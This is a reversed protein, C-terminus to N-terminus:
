GDIEFLVNFDFYKLTLLDGAVIQMTSLPIM